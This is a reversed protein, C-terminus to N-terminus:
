FSNVSRSGDPGAVGTICRADDDEACGKASMDKACGETCGLEIGGLGSLLLVGVIIHSSGLALESALAMLLRMLDLIDVDLGFSQSGSGNSPESGCLSQVKMM